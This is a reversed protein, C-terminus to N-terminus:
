SNTNRKISESEEKDSQVPVILRLVLTKDDIFKWYCSNDFHRASYSATKFKHAKLVYLSM